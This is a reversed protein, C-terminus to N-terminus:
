HYMKLLTETASPPHWVLAVLIMYDDAHLYSALRQREYFRLAVAAAALAIFVANTAFLASSGSTPM